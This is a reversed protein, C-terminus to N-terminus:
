GAREWQAVVADMYSEGLARVASASHQGGQEAYEEGAEILDVPPLPEDIGRRTAIRM